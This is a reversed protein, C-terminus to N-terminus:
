LTGATTAPIEGLMMLHDVESSVFTVCVGSSLKPPSINSIVPAPSIVIKAAAPFRHPWETRRM